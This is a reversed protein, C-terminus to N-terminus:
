DYCLRIAVAIYSCGNSRICLLGLLILSGIRFCLVEGDITVSIGCQVHLGNGAVPGVFM